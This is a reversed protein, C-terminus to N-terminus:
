PTIAFRYFGQPGSAGGFNTVTLMAGVSNSVCVGSVNGWNTPNMSPSFQLQYTEGAISVVGFVMSTSVAQVNTIQDIPWAPPNLPVSLRFVTGSKNLGGSGTVGYFNGDSGQILSAYSDNGDGPSGSFSHLNTEVGSATVQFVTGSNYAGGAATTGYFNGDGGQVLAAQPRAGDNLQSGFSYLNTYAGGPSVRFVTGSDNAGGIETTGYFNGDSAQLLAGWPWAGDAPPGAFSHLDTYGGSPTIRFANGCGNTLLRGGSAPTIILNTGNLGFLTTGYFNGDSGRVLGVFPAAGGSPAGTFSHLITESGGPSFRFVTGCGGSCLTGTGGDITTGYFNGDSGLTVGNPASGDNPFGTFSYLSAFSGSPSIRYVNGDFDRGGFQTTGYFNGDNGLSLPGLPDQGNPNGGFGFLNSYTGGPSIRYVTGCDLSGGGATTGYFNGDAGQVLAAGPYRGDSSRVGFSYLVTETQGSAEGFGGGLILLAIAVGNSMKM